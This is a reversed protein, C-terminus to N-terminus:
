APFTCFAWRAEGEVAERGRVLSFVYLLGHARIGARHRVRRANEKLSELAEEQLRDSPGIARQMFVAEKM